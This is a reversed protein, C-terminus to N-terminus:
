PLNLLYDVIMYKCAADLEERGRQSSPGQETTMKGEDHRATSEAGSSNGSSEASVDDAAAAAAAARALRKEERSVALAELMISHDPKSISSVIHAFSLVDSRDQSNLEALARGNRVDNLISSWDIFYESPHQALCRCCCSKKGDAVVFSSNVKRKNDARKMVCDAITSPTDHRGWARMQRLRRVVLHLTDVFGNSKEIMGAALRVRKGLAASKEKSEKEREVGATEDEIIPDDQGSSSGDDDDDDDNDEEEEGGGAAAAAALATADDDDGGSGGGGDRGYNDDDYDSSSSSSGRDLGIGIGVVRRLRIRKERLREKAEPSSAMKGGGKALAGGRAHATASCNLSSLSRKRERCSKNCSLTFLDITASRVGHVCSPHIFRERERESERERERKKERHFTNTRLPETRQLRCFLFLFLKLMVVIPFFNESNVSVCISVKISANYESLIVAWAPCPLPQDYTLELKM